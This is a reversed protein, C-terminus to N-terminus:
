SAGERAHGARGTGAVFASRRPVRAGLAARRAPPPSPSCVPLRPPPHSRRPLSTALAAGAGQSGYCRLAGGKVEGGAPVALVPTLRVGHRRLRSMREGVVGAFWWAYPFES